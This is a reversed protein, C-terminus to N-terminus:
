PYTRREGRFPISCLLASCILYASIRIYEVLGGYCGWYVVVGEEGAERLLAQEDGAGFDLLEALCARLVLGERM